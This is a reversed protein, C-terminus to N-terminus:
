ARLNNAPHRISFTSRACSQIITNEFDSYFKAIRLQLTPHIIGLTNRSRLTRNIKFLFPKTYDSNQKRIKRLAARQRESFDPMKLESLFLNDNTFGFPLEYPLTETLIARLERLRLDIESM